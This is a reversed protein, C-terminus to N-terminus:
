RNSEVGKSKEFTRMGGLGLMGLLLTMLTETPLSPLDPIKHGVYLEVAWPALTCILFEYGLGVVCIWGCAPRWGSVFLSGSAAEAQNVAIQAKALEFVQQAAQLEGAQQAKFLELKAADRTAPDPWLRDILKGGIDLLATAPDFAM